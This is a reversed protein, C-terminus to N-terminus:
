DDEDAALERIWGPVPQGIKASAVIYVRAAAVRVFAASRALAVVAVIRRLSTATGARIAM